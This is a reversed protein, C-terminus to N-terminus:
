IHLQEPDWGSRLELMLDSASSKKFHLQMCFLNYAAAGCIVPIECLLVELSNEGKQESKDLSSRM